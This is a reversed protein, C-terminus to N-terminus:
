SPARMVTSRRSRSRPRFSSAGAPRGAPISTGDQSPGSAARARPLRWALRQGYLALLSLGGGALVDAVYHGGASLTAIVVAANLLAAPPGLARIGALAWATIVALCVHFSPFTALGRIDQLALSQAAGTRLLEFHALHWTGGMTVLNDSAGQALGYHAYAGEAPFLTSVAVTVLLLAAFLRVFAWLRAFRCTGGLVVVVLAVQPASSHYALALVEALWPHRGLEAVHGRWDFGLLRDFSALRSDVLPRGLTAALYHLVGVAITFAFLFASAHAMARLTPEPKSVTWFASALLLGVLIAASLGLGEAGFSVPSQALWVVDLGAVAGTVIWLLPHPAGLGATRPLRGFRRFVGPGATVIRDARRTPSSRKRRTDTGSEGLRRQESCTQM